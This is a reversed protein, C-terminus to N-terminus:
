SYLKHKPLVKRGYRGKRLDGLPLAVVLQSGLLVRLRAVLDLGHLCQQASAVRFFDDEKCTLSHAVKSMTHTAYYSDAGSSPAAGLPRPTGIVTGMGGFLIGLLGM